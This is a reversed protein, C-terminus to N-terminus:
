AKHELYQIWEFDRVARLRDIRKGAERKGEELDEIKKQWMVGALMRDLMSNSLEFVEALKEEPTMARARLIKDRYIEDQFAELDRQKQEDTM